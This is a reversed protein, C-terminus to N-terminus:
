NYILHLYHIFLLHINFLNCGPTIAIELPFEKDNTCVLWSTSIKSAKERIENNNSIEDDNDDNDYKEDNDTSRSDSQTDFGTEFVTNCDFKNYIVSGINFTYDYGISKTPIQYVIQQLTDIYFYFESNFNAKTYM